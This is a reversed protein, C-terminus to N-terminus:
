ESAEAMLASEYNLIYTRMQAFEWGNYATPNKMMAAIEETAMDALDKLRELETQVGPSDALGIKYERRAQEVFEAAAERLEMDTYTSTADAAEHRALQNALRWIMGYMEETTEYADGLNEVMGTFSEPNRLKGSDTTAHKYSGAM